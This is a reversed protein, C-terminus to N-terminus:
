TANTPPVPTRTKTSKIASRILTFRPKTSLSVFGIKLLPDVKLNTRYAVNELLYSAIARSRRFPRSWM